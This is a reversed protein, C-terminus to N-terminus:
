RRLTPQGPKYPFPRSQPRRSFVSGGGTQQFNAGALVMDEAAHSWIHTTTGTGPGIDLAGFDATKKTQNSTALGDAGGGAYMTVTLDGSTSTIAQSITTTFATAKTLDNNMPTTQNVGTATIVGVSASAAGTWSCSATQSGTAPAIVYFLMVNIGTAFTDSSALKTGSVGGCTATEGTTNLLATLGVCAARNTGSITFAGTTVSTVGFNDATVSNDFAVAM